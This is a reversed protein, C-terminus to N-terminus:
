QRTDAALAVAVAVIADVATAAGRRRRRRRGRSRRRRRRRRCSKGALLAITTTAITPSTIADRHHHASSPSARPILGSSFRRSVVACLEARARGGVAGRDRTGATGNKREETEGRDFALLRVQIQNRAQTDRILRRREKKRKNRPQWTPFNETLERSRSRLRRQSSQVSVSLVRPDGGQRLKPVSRVRDTQKAVEHRALVVIRDRRTESMARM